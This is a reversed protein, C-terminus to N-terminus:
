PPTLAAAAAEGVKVYPRLKDFTKPGIGSVQRLEDVSQFFKKDRHDLIRQSLKTGIGPLKQLDTSTALNIDIQQGALALEKKSKGKAPFEGSYSPRRAVHLSTPPDNEVFLHPRLRELTAPGIGPVRRLDDVQRFPGQMERCAVVREALTPGVGPLQRLASASARNLDLRVDLTGPTEPAHIRDHLTASGLGLLMGVVLAAATWQASGPWSVLLSRAPVSVAPAAVPPPAPEASTVGEPDKASSSM